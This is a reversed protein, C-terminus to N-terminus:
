RDLQNIAALRKAVMGSPGHQDRPNQGTLTGLYFFNARLFTHHVSARQANECGRGLANLSWARVEATAATALILVQRGFLLRHRFPFDQALSQPPQSTDIPLRLDRDM